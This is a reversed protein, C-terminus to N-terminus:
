ILWSLDVIHLGFQGYSISNNIIGLGFVKKSVIKFQKGRGTKPKWSLNCPKSPHRLPRNFDINGLFQKGGGRKPYVPKRTSFGEFRV